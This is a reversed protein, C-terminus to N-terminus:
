GWASKGSWCRRMGKNRWMLAKDMDAMDVEKTVVQVEVEVGKFVQSEEGQREMSRATAHTSLIVWEEVGHAFVTRKLVSGVGIILQVVGSVTKQSKKLGGVPVEDVMAVEEVEEGFTEM